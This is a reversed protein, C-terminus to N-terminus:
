ANESRLRSVVPVIDSLVHERFTKVKDQDYDILGM